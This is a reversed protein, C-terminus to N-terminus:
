THPLNQRNAFFFPPLKGNCFVSAFFLSWKKKREEKSRIKRTAKGEGKIRERM